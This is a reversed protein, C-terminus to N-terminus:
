IKKTSENSFCNKTKHIVIALYSCFLRKASNLRPCAITCVGDCYLYKYCFINKELVMRILKMDQQSQGIDEM